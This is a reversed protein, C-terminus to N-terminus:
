PKPAVSVEGSTGDPALFYGGATHTKQLVVGNFKAAKQTSPHTFSGSLAGSTKLKVALKTANGVGITVVNKADVTADNARGGTAGGTLALRVEGHNGRFM